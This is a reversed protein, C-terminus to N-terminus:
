SEISRIAAIVRDVDGDSLSPYLPISLCREYYGEAHPLSPQRESFYERFYPQYHIPIYHVQTGIGKESLFNMVETRTKGLAQFDFLLLYLHFASHRDEPRIVPRIYELDQLAENYREVIERRRSVFRDLKKLQTLALAAQFSTLRYNFGLSHMEYYWPAVSDGEFAQAKCQFKQPDRTIGHTRLDLLNRYLGEDNTTIMGGEGATITKVPHLSFISLDSYTCSGIPEGSEYTGGLAHCTDELIYANISTALEQIEKAPGVRGALHVPVLIKTRDTIVQQISARTVNMTDPSIDALQVDGGAYFICNASALFTVASTVGEFPESIDLALASLHLAATGNSVAVAYQAGVQEAFEVELQEILPGGTLYDSKLARTVADIDDQDITQKGYPLFSQSM